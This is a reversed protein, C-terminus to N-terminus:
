KGFGVEMHKDGAPTSSTKTIIVPFDVIMDHVYQDMDIIVTDKTGFDIKMGLYDHVKGRLPKVAKYVRYMRELWEGFKDNVKPNKHSSMIDDVHFRITQQSGGKIRNAICADYVHFKFGIAELDKRFKKYWLLSAALM